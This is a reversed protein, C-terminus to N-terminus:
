PHRVSHRRGGCHPALNAVPPPYGKAHVDENYPPIESIDAVDITMGEPALAVAVRMAAMNYSAKRLSGCIGLVRIAQQPM